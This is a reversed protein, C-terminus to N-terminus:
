ETPSLGGGPGNESLTVGHRALLQALEDPDSTTKAAVIEHRDGVVGRTVNVIARSWADASKADGAATAQELGDYLKPVIAHSRDDVIARLQERLEAILAKGEPRSGWTQLTKVPVDVETEELVKLRVENWSLGQARHEYARRKLDDTYQSTSKAM